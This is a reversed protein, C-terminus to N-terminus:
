GETKKSIRQSNKEKLNKIHKRADGEMRLAKV